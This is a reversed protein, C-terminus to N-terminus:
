ELYNIYLPEVKFKLSLVPPLSKAEPPVKVAV